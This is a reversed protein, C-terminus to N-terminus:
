GQSSSVSFEPNPDPHLDFWVEKAPESKALYYMYYTAVFLFLASGLHGAILEFDLYNPDASMLKNLSPAYFCIAWFLAFILWISACGRHNKNIRIAVKEADTLETLKASVEKIEKSKRSLCVSLAILLAGAVLLAASSIWLHSLIDRTVEMPIEVDLIGHNHLYQHYSAASLFLLGASSSVVGASASIGTHYHYFGKPEQANNEVLEVSPM